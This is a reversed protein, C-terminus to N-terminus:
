RLTFRIPIRTWVKVAQGNQVAPTFSTEQVAKVAASNLLENDTEIVQIKEIRGDKGILAGVLVIGEVGNAKAVPPYKVRKALEAEDYQPEKEVSVFDEIDPEAERAAIQVTGEGINDAFGGNDDGSGGIASARNIEDVNAFDKADPALEADPVAVPTGARAAPGSPLSSAPPPPPPAEESQSQPPPLNDLSVRALRVKVVNPPPYLLNEIYTRLFAFLALLLLLSMTVIFAKRTNVEILRKLEAAGYKLAELPQQLTAATSM